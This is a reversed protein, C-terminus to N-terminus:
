RFRLNIVSNAVDQWLIRGQALDIWDMGGDWKKFVLKLIIGGDLGVVKLHDREMVNGWWFETPVEGKGCVHRAVAGGGGEAWRGRRWKIVRVVNPSCYLGYLEENHLKRWEETVEDRKPGFIRRLVRLRREAKLTFSWTECGCLVVPM